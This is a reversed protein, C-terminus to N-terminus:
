SPCSVLGSLCGGFYFLVYYAFALLPVLLSAALGFLLARPTSGRLPVTSGVTLAVALTSFGLLVGIFRSGELDLTNRVAVFIATSLVAAVLTFWRQM